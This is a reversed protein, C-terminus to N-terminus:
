HVKAHLGHTDVSPADELVGGLVKMAVALLFGAVCAVGPIDGGHHNKAEPTLKNFPNVAEKAMNFAQPLMVSAIMALMMGGALGEIVAATIEVEVSDHMDAPILFAALAALSGTMVCPITWMGIIAWKSFTEHEQMISASSFSEPFNAIFLSVIFMTSLKGGTALFGILVSEPVGDAVIGALMGLALSAGGGSHGSTPTGYKMRSGKRTMIHLKQLKVGIKIKGWNKSARHSQPPTHTKQGVTEKGKLPNRPSSHEGGHEIGKTIVRSEEDHGDEEEGGEMSEVWRNLSIYALSGILAAVLCIIVEVVGEKHRHMELHMLQEGYLEVTVAFMLCGAGFAIILAVFYPDVPSMMIGMVAGVPLSLASMFGYVGAQLVVDHDSNSFAAWSRSLGAAEGELQALKAALFGFKM